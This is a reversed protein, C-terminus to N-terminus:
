EHTQDRLQEFTVIQTGIYGARVQLVFSKSLMSGVVDYFHTLGSMDAGKSANPLM